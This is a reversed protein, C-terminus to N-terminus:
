FSHFNMDFDMNLYYMDHRKGYNSIYKKTKNIYQSNLNCSDIFAQINPSSLGNMYDFVSRNCLFYKGEYLQSVFRSDFSSTQFIKNIKSSSIELGDDILIFNKGSSWYIFTNIKILECDLEAESFNIILSQSILDSRFTKILDSKNNKAFDSSLFVHLVSARNYNSLISLCKQIFDINLGKTQDLIFSVENRDFCNEKFTFYNNRENEKSAKPHFLHFGLTNELKYFQPSKLKNKIFDLDEWGWGFFREDFGGVEIYKSKKIIFCYKGLYDDFKYNDLNFGTSNIFLQSEKKDLNYIKSFPQIFDQDDIHDVIDKFPLIVDCDLFWLYKANSLKAAINYLKSKEFLNSSFYKVHTFNKKNSIYTKKQNSAIQECLIVNLNYEKLKKLLFNLNSVRDQCGCDFFSIIIDIKSESTMRLRAAKNISELEEKM